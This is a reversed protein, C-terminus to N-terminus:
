RQWKEIGATINSIASEMGPTVHSNEEIWGRMSSLTERVGDAFDEAREPLDDLMSEATDIEELAVSWECSDCM